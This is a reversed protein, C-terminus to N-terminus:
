SCPEDWHYQEALMKKTVPKVTVEERQKKEFCKKVQMEVRGFHGGAEVFM